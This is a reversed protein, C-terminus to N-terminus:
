IYSTYEKKPALGQNQVKMLFTNAFLNLISFAWKSVHLLNINTDSHM